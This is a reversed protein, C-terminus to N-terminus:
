RVTGTDAMTVALAHRPADAGQRRDGHSANITPEPREPQNRHRHVLHNWHSSRADCSRAHHTGGRARAGASAGCLHNRRPVADWALVIGTGNAVPTLPEETPLHNGPQWCGMSVSSGPASIRLGSAPSTFREMPSRQRLWRRTTTATIARQMRSPTGSNM